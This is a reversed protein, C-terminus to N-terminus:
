AEYDHLTLCCKESKNKTKKKERKKKKKMDKSNGKKLFISPTPYPNQLPSVPFLALM